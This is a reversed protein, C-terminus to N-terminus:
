TKQKPDCFVIISSVCSLGGEGEQVKLYHKRVSDTNLGVASAFEQLKPHKIVKPAEFSNWNPYKIVNHSM